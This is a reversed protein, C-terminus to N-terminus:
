KIHRLSLGKLMMTSISCFLAEWAEEVKSNWYSASTLIEMIVSIFCKRLGEFHSQSIRLNLEIHRRGLEILYAYFSESDGMATVANDIAMLLRRPHGHRGNIENIDISRFESFHKILEPHM